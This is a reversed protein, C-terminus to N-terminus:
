AGVQLLRELEARHAEPAEPIWKRIGLRGPLVVPAIESRVSERLDHGPDIRQPVLIRSGGVEYAAVTILDIVLGDTM